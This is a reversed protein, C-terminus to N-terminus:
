FNFSQKHEREILWMYKEPLGFEMAMLKKETQQFLISNSLVHLHKACKIRSPM